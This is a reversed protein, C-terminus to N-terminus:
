GPQSPNTVTQDSPPTDSCTVLFGGPLHALWTSSTSNLGHRRAPAPTHRSCATHAVHHTCAPRAAAAHAAAAAPLQATARPSPILSIAWSRRTVGPDTRRHCLAQRSPPASASRDLPGTDRSFSLVCCHARSYASSARPRQRVPECPVLAPGQVPDLRQGAPQEMDAVCDFPHPLHCANGSRGPVRTPCAAPSRSRM